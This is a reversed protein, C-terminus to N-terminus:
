RAEGRAPTRRGKGRGRYADTTSHCNPCLFRLNQPQNNRWNGDIHDVELPLPRDRWTRGTGCLACRETAGLAVMARKLREGPIRRALNQSRDVLLEEPRRRRVEGKRVPASFHSTDIGLTKVRRSIHTHQGGVVELGLRRLVECMTTSSAVAAQLVEKTWRVGESEFHRTDVGLKRMRDFLYRRTPSKPDVGLKALAESLTRSSSAAEELRERTYPSNGM